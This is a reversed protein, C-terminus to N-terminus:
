HAARKAELARLYQQRLAKSERIHDHVSLARKQHAALILLVCTFLVYVLLALVPWVKVFVEWTM